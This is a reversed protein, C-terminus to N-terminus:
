SDGDFTKQKLFRNLNADCGIYRPHNSKLQFETATGLENPESMMFELMERSWVRDNESESDTILFELANSLSETIRPDALGIKHLRKQYVVALSVLMLRLPTAVQWKVEFIPDHNQTRLNKLLRICSIAHGRCEDTGHGNLRSIVAEMNRFPLENEKSLHQEILTVIRLLKLDDFDASTGLSRILSQIEAKAHVPEVSRNTPPIATRFVPHEDHFILAYGPDDSDLLSVIDRPIEVSLEFRYNLPQQLPKIENLKISDVETTHHTFIRASLGNPNGIFTGAMELSDADDHPSWKSEIKFQRPSVDVIWAGLEVDASATIELFTGTVKQSALAKALLEDLQCQEGPQLDVQHGQISLRISQESSVNLFAFREADVLEISSIQSAQGRDLLVVDAINSPWQLHVMSGEDGQMWGEVTQGMTAMECTAVDPSLVADADDDYELILQPNHGIRCPPATVSRPSRFLHLPNSYGIGAKECFVKFHGIPLDYGSDNFLEVLSLEGSENAFRQLQHINWRHRFRSGTVAFRFGKSPKRGRSFQPLRVNLPDDHAFPVCNRCKTITAVGVAVSENPCVLTVPDDSDFDWTYPPAVIQFYECDSEPTVRYLTWGNFAFVSRMKKLRCDTGQPEEKGQVGVVIGCSLSSSDSPEPVFLSQHRQVVGDIAVFAKQPPTLTFSKLVEENDDLLEISSSEEVKLVDVKAIPTFKRRITGCWNTGGDIRLSVSVSENLFRSFIGNIEPRFGEDCLHWDVSLSFRPVLNQKFSSNDPKPLRGSEFETALYYGGLRATQVSDGLYFPRAPQDGEARRVNFPRSQWAFVTQSQFDHWCEPTKSAILKASLGYSDRLQLEREVEGLKIKVPGLPAHELEGASRSVGDAYFVSASKGHTKVFSKLSQYTLSTGVRAIVNQLAERTEPTLRNLDEGSHEKWWDRLSEWDWFGIEHFVDGDRLERILNVITQGNREMQLRYVEVRDREASDRIYKSCIDAVEVAAPRGRDNELTQRLLFELFELVIHTRDPGVATQDLCYAVFRNHIDPISNKTYKNLADRFFTGSRAGTPQVDDFALVRAVEPWLRNIRVNSLRSRILYLLTIVATEYDLSKHESIARSVNRFATEASEPSPVFDVEWFAPEIEGQNDELWQLVADFYENKIDRPMQFFSFLPLQFGYNYHLIQYIGCFGATAGAEEPLSFNFNAAKFRPRM